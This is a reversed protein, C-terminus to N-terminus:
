MEWSKTEVEIKTVEKPIEVVDDEEDAAAKKKKKEPMFLSITIKRKKHICTKMVWKKVQEEAGKVNALARMHGVFM